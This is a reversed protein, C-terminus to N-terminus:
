KSEYSHLKLKNYNYINISKIAEIDNPSLFSKFLPVDHTYMTFNGLFVYAMALLDSLQAATEVTPVDKNKNYHEVAATILNLLTERDLLPLLYKM